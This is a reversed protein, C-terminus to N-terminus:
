IIANIKNIIEEKPIVGVVTDEVAGNKFFILTPISRVKYEKSIEKAQDVDIKLVKVKGALEASIEEIVPALMKCPGCWEAFFDVLVPQECKLVEAEFSDQEIIKAM